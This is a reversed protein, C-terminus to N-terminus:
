ECRQYSRAMTNSSWTPLKVPSRSKSPSSLITASRPWRSCTAPSAPMPRASPKRAVAARSSSRPKRMASEGVNNTFSVHTDRLFRLGSEGHKVLWEYLNHPDSKAVRGPQGKSRPPIDPLEKAGQTLITRYRKHLAEFAAKSVVKSRSRNLKQCAERQMPAELSTTLRAM